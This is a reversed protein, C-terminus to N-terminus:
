RPYGSRELFEEPDRPAALIDGIAREKDSAEEYYAEAIRYGMWYGLDAPRDTRTTDYLWGTFDTGGMRAKFEKWLEAERSDAWEHVHSNINGGSVLEGIFDAGGERLSAQLLTAPGHPPVQNIHMLEHVVILPLDRADRLVAREWESLEHTPATADRGYMEAGILIADSSTTGGSNMRGIVLYVDTFRADPYLEKFRRFTHRIAPGASDLGALSSRLHAYYEPRSKVQALLLEASGIRSHIWAELGPSGGELYREQLVRISDETTGAIRLADLADLFRGVDRTEIRVGDPDTEQARAHAAAPAPLSATVGTALIVTRALTRTV